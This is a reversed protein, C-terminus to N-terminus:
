QAVPAPRTRENHRDQEDKIREASDKASRTDVSVEVSMGPVLLKRTEPGADIAVRVPVRQVIKTFNGTANQPPLISFQAGTGPAISEITGHLEVGPLADVEVNVRQGPRMLGLQTEKFNATVYLSKDPVLSMLRTSAQVFQGQRVSKSGIRGNATARLITAEVDTQAASLQARASDGQARAQQVQAKLTAVRKETGALTARAAAVNANAQRAQSELQALHERTEAGTAALPRYRAAEANALDASAQASAVQARAQDIAAYQEQVQAAAGEASAGAVAIAARSQLAQATYDRPDIQVLPDGTKVVQNESVFVRDVYGSIKPAITIADSQVYADDTSEQYQGFTLYRVTLFAGGIVVIIGGVLLITRLRRNKSNATDHASEGPTEHNSDGITQPAQDDTSGTM